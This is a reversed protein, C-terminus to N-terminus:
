YRNCLVRTGGIVNELEFLVFYESYLTSVVLHILSIAKLTGMDILFYESCFLGKNDLNGNPGFMAVVANEGYSEINQEQFLLATM